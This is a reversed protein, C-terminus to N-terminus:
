LYASGEPSFCQYTVLFTFIQTEVKWYVKRNSFQMHVDNYTSFLTNRSSLLISHRGKEKCLFGVLNRKNMNMVEKEELVEHINLLCSRDFLINM